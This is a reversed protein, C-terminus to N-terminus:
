SKFKTGSNAKFLALNSPFFATGADCIADKCTEALTVNSLLLFCFLNTVFHFSLSLSSISCRLCLSFKCQAPKGLPITLTKAKLKANQKNQSRSKALDTLLGNQCIPHNGDTRLTHGTKTRGHQTHVHTNLSHQYFQCYDIDMTHVYICSIFLRQNPQWCFLVNM